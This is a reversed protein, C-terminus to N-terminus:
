RRRAGLDVEYALAKTQAAGSAISEGHGGVDCEETMLRVNGDGFEGRANAVERQLVDHSVLYEEELAGRREFGFVEAREASGHRDRLPDGIGVERQFIDGREKEIFNGVDVALDGEAKSREPDRWGTHAREIALALIRELLFTTGRPVDAILAHGGGGDEEMIGAQEVSGRSALDGHDGVFIREPDTARDGRLVDLRIRFAIHLLRHAVRRRTEERRLEGLDEEVETRPQRAPLGHSLALEGDEIGEGAGAHDRHLTQQASPVDEGRIRRLARHAARLLIKLPQALLLFDELLIHPARNPLLIGSPGEDELLTRIHDDCLRREAGRELLSGREFVDRLQLRLVLLQLFVEEVVDGGRERANRDDRRPGDPVRTLPLDAELLHPIVEM